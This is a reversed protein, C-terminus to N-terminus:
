KCMALIRSPVGTASVVKAPAVFAACQGPKYAKLAALNTANEVLKWGRQIGLQHVWWGDGFPDGKTGLGSKGSDVSLNDMMIGGIKIGKAKELAILWDVQPKELGPFNLGNMYPHLFPNKPPTGTYFKSWGTNIVLWVGNGIQDKVKELDSVRVMNDFSTQKRDPSPKGGNKALEASVRASVDIYVVRAFLEQVSYQDVSRNDAKGKLTAKNNQYHDTSDIHTSFHEDLSFYGWQFHGTKTQFNKKLKRVGEFGFSAVPKSGKYPKKLDPKLMDNGEPRFMPVAHSLDHLKFASLWHASNKQMKDQSQAPMAAALLAAGAIIMTRM